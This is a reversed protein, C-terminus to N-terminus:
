DLGEDLSPRLGVAVNEMAQAFQPIGVPMRAPPENSQGPPYLDLRPPKKAGELPEPSGLQVNPQVNPQQGGVAPNSGDAPQWRNEVRNEVRAIDTSPGIAAGPGPPAPAPAFGPPAPPPLAGVPPPAVVAGPPLGGPPPAIVRSPMGSPPCPPPCAPPPCSPRHKHCCGTVFVLSLALARLAYNM